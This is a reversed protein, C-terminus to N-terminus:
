PQPLAPVHACPSPRVHPAPEARVPTMYKGPRDFRFPLIMLLTLIVTVFRAPPWFACFVACKKREAECPPMLVDSPAPCLVPLWIPVSEPQNWAYAASLKLKVGVNKLEYM